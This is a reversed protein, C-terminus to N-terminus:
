SAATVTDFAATAAAIAAGVGVPLVTCLQPNVVILGCETVPMEHAASVALAYAGLQAAYKAGLAGPEHADFTDTKYDYIALGASTEVLLDITGRIRVAGLDSQVSIEHHCAGSAYLRELEASEFAARLCALLERRRAPTVLRVAEREGDADLPRATIADNVIRDLADDTPNLVSLELCKHIVTGFLRDSEFVGDSRLPEGAHAVLRSPGIRPIQGSPSSVVLAPRHPRLFHTVSVPLDSDTLTRLHEPVARGPAPTASAASGALADSGPQQCDGQMPNKIHPPAADSESFARVKLALSETPGRERHWTSIFLADRARTMAVYGLRLREEAQEARQVHEAQLYGETTFPTDKNGARVAVTGGREIADPTRIAGIFGLGCLFVIPYELGKASHMTTIRVADRNLSIQDTARARLIRKTRLWEAAGEIGRPASDASGNISAAVVADRLFALAASRNEGNERSRNSGFLDLSDIMGDLADVASSTNWQQALAALSRAGAVVRPIQGPEDPFSVDPAIEPDHEAAVVRRLEEIQQAIERDSCSFPPVRLAAIVHPMSNPHAIGDLLAILEDADEGAFRHVPSEVTAPIEHRGLATLLDDIGTRSPVLIAIDSYRVARMEDGDNITWPRAVLEGISCAVDEAEQSRGADSSAAKEGFVTVIPQDPLGEPRVSAMRGFPPDADPAIHEFLEAVWELLQPRSRFNSTLEVPVGSLADLAHTVAPGAGRFLYISQRRDGVITFSATESAVECDGASARAREILKTLFRVQSPDTDQVEDVVIERLNKAFDCRPDALINDAVLILEDYTVLGERRREEDDAVLELRILEGVTGLAKGRASATERALSERIALFRDFWEDRRALGEPWSEKWVSKRQPTARIPIKWSDAHELASWVDEPNTGIWFETEDCIGAVLLLDRPGHQVEEALARLEAKARAFAATLTSEVTSPLEGSPLASDISRAMDAGGLHLNRAIQDLDRITLGLAFATELAPRFAHSGLVAERIRQWRRAHESAQATEDLVEIAPPLDVLLAYNRVIDTALSHITGIHAEGLSALAANAREAETVDASAALSILGDAIRSQLEAAAALTFTIAALERPELPDIEATLRTVIRRVVATTKGSGAAARISFGEPSHQILNRVDLDALTM